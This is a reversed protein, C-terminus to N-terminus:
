GDRENKAWQAGDGHPQADENANDHAKGEIDEILEDAGETQDVLYGRKQAGNKRWYDEQPNATPQQM